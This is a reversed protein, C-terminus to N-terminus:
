RRSFARDDARVSIHLATPVFPPIMNARAVAFRGSQYTRMSRRSSFVTCPWHKASVTNGTDPLNYFKCCTIARVCIFFPLQTFSTAVVVTVTCVYKGLSKDTDASYLCDEDKGKTEVNRDQEIMQEAAARDAPAM